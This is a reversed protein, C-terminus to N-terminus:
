LIFFRHMTKFASFICLAHKNKRSVRECRYFLFFLALLEHFLYLCVAGTKTCPLSPSRDPRGAGTPELNKSRDTLDTLFGALNEKRAVLICKFVSRFICVSICKKFLKHFRCKRIVGESFLVKM